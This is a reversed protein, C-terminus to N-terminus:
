PCGRDQEGLQLADRLWRTPEARVREFIPATETIIYQRRSRSREEVDVLHDGAEAHERAVDPDAAQALIQRRPEVLRHGVNRSM